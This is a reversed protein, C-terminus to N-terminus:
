FFGHFHIFFLCPTKKHDLCYFINIKFSFANNHTNIKVNRHLVSYYLIICTDHSSKWCNFVNKFLAWTRENEHAVQTVRFLVYFFSLFFCFFSSFGPCICISFFEDITFVAHSWNYFVKSFLQSFFNCEKWIGKSLFSCNISKWFACNCHKFINAEVFFFCRFISCFPIYHSFFQSSVTVNEYVICKTCSM